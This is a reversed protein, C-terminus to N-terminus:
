RRSKRWFLRGVTHVRSRVGRIHNLADRHRNHPNRHEDRHKRLHDGYPVAYLVRYPEHLMHSWQVLELVVQPEAKVCEGLFGQHLWCQGLDLAREENHALDLAWQENHGLDLALQENSPVEFWILIM